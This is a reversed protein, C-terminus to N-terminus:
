LGDVPTNHALDTLQRSADLVERRRRVVNPYACLVCSDNMEVDGSEFSVM